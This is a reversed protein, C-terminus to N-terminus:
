RSVTVRKKFVRVSRRPVYFVFATRWDVDLVPDDGIVRNIELRSRWMPTSREHVSILVRDPGPNKWAWFDLYHTWGNRDVRKTKVLMRYSPTEATGVFVRISDETNPAPPHVSIRILFKPTWGSSTIDDRNVMDRHPNIAGFVGLGTIM